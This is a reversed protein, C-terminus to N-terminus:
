HSHDAALVLLCPVLRQGDHALENAVAVALVPHSHPLRHTLRTPRGLDGPQQLAGRQLQLALREEQAGVERRVRHVRHRALRLEGQQLAARLVTEQRAEVRLVLAHEDVRARRHLVQAVLERPRARHDPVAHLLPQLLQALVLRLEDHAVACARELVDHRGEGGLLARDHRPVGRLGDLHARVLDSHLEERVPPRHAEQLGRRSPKELEHASRGEVAAAGAGGRIRALLQWGKM